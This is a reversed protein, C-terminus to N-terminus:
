SSRLSVKTEFFLTRDTGRPKIADEPSWPIFTPEGFLSPCLVMV